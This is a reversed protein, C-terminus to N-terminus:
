VLLVAVSASGLSAVLEFVGSASGSSFDFGCGFGVGCAAGFGVDFGASALDVGADAAAGFPFFFSGETYM